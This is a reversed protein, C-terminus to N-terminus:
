RYNEVVFIDGRDTDRIYILAMGDASWVGNHTHWLGNGETLQEPDELARPLGGQLEPRALPLVFLQQDIHSVGHGFAVARGDPSVGHEVHPVSSLLVEEGSELDAARLERGIM